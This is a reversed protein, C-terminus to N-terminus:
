ETRCQLLKAPDNAYAVTRRAIGEEIRSKNMASRVFSFRGRRFDLTSERMTASAFHVPLTGFGCRALPRLDLCTFSRRMRVIRGASITMAESQAATSPQFGPRASAM